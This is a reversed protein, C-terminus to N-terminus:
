GKEATGGGSIRFTVDESDDGTEIGDTRRHGAGRDGENMRVSGLTDITVTLRRDTDTDAGGMGTGAGRVISADAERGVARDGIALGVERVNASTGQVKRTTWLKRLRTVTKARRCLRRKQMTLAIKALYTATSMRM